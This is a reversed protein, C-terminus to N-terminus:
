DWLLKRRLGQERGLIKVRRDRKDLEKIIEAVLEMLKRADQEIAAARCLERWKDDWDQDM